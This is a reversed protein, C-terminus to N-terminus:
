RRVDYGVTHLGGHSEGLLLNCHVGGCTRVRGGPERLLRAPLTARSTYRTYGGRRSKGQGKQRAGQASTRAAPRATACWTSCSTGWPRGCRSRAAGRLPAVRLWKCARCLSSDRNQRPLWALLLAGGQSALSRNSYRSSPWAIFFPDRHAHPASCAGKLPGKGTGRGRRTSCSRRVPAPSRSWSVTLIELGLWFYGGQGATRYGHARYGHRFVGTSGFPPTLHHHACAYRTPWDTWKLRQTDFNTVSSSNSV